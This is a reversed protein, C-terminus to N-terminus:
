LNESSDHTQIEAIMKKVGNRVFEELINQPITVFGTDIEKDNCFSLHNYVRTTRYNKYAIECNCDMDNLNECPTFYFSYSGAFENNEVVILKFEIAAGYKTFTKDKIVEETGDKKSVINTTYKIKTDIRVLELILETGTLVKIEKYDIDKSKSIVENFLGRDKVDFEALLLEKEIANYIYSNPDSETIQKESKPVKLVISPSENEKMFEKITNTAIIEDSKGTLHLYGKQLSCSSFFFTAILILLISKTAKM